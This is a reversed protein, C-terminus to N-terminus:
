NREGFLLLVRFVGARNRHDNEVIYLALKRIHLRVTQERHDADAFRVALDQTIQLLFLDGNGLVKGLIHFVHHAALHGVKGAEANRRIQCQLRLDRSRAATNVGGQRATREAIHAAGRHRRRMHCTRSRYHLLVDVPFERLKRCRLLLLKDVLQHHARRGRDGIRVANIIRRSFLAGAKCLNVVCDMRVGIEGYLATITWLCFQLIVFVSGEGKGKRNVVHAVALKGIVNGSNRQGRLRLRHLVVTKNGFGGAHQRFAFEAHGEALRGYGNRCIARSGNCDVHLQRIFAFFLKGFECIACEQVAKDHKIGLICVADIERQRIEAEIAVPGLRRDKICRNVVLRLRGGIFHATYIQNVVVMGSIRDADIQNGSIHFRCAFIFNCNCAMLKAILRNIRNKTHEASRLHGVIHYRISGSVFYEIMGFIFRPFGEIVCVASEKGIIKRRFAPLRNIERIVTLIVVQRISLVGICHRTVNVSFLALLRNRERNVDVIRRRLNNRMAIILFVTRGIKLYGHLIVTIHHTDLQGILVATLSKAFNNSDLATRRTSFHTVGEVECFSDFKSFLEATDHHHVICLVNRPTADHAKCALIDLRDFNLNVLLLNGTIDVCFWKLQICRYIRLIRNVSRNHPRRIIRVHCAYRFGANKCWYAATFRCNTCGCTVTHLSRSSNHYVLRDAFQRLIKDNALVPTILDRCIQVFVNQNRVVRM